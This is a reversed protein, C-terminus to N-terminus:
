ADKVLLMPNANFFKGAESWGNRLLAKKFARSAQRNTYVEDGISYKEFHGLTTWGNAEASWNSHTMLVTGPKAQFHTMGQMPDGVNFEDSPLHEFYEMAVVLDYEGTPAAIHEANTVGTKEKLFKFAKELTGPMDPPNFEVYHVEAKPFLKALVLTTIGPGAGIDLIRAPASQLKKATHEVVPGSEFVSCGLSDFPYEPHTYLWVPDRLKRWEPFLDEALPQRWPRATGHHGPLKGPDNNRVWRKQFEATSLGMAQALLMQFELTDSIELTKLISM